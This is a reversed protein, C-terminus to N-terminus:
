CLIGWGGPKKTLASELPTVSRNRTLTSELPSAPPQNRAFGSSVRHEGTLASELPSLLLFSFLQFCLEHHCGGCGPHKQLSHVFCQFFLPHTESKQVLACFLPSFTLRNDCLPSPLLRLPRQSPYSAHLAVEKLPSHCDPAPPTAPTPIPQFRASM